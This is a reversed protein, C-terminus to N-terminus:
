STTVTVNSERWLYKVRYTAHGFYDMIKESLDCYSM